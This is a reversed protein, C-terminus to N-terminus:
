QQVFTVTPAVTYTIILRDGASLPFVGATEGTAYNVGPTRSFQILSVTGGSVIVFGKQTAQYTFPSATVVLASEPGPPNGVSLAQWFFYWVKSTTSGELLKTDYTPQQIFRAM